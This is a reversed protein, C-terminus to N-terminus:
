IKVGVQGFLSVYDGEGWEEVIRNEEIRCITIYTWTVQKGTAPADLWEGKHTATRTSRFVVKDEVAFIDEITFRFDPFAALFGTM